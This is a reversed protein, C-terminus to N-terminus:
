FRSTSNSINQKESKPYKDGGTARFGRQFSGGKTYRTYQGPVRKFVATRPQNGRFFSQHTQQAQLIMSAKYLEEINEYPDKATSHQLIEAVKGRKKFGLLFRYREKMEEVITKLVIVSTAPVIDSTTALLAELAKGWRYTRKFEEMLPKSVPLKEPTPFHTPLTSACISDLVTQSEKFIKDPLPTPITRGLYPYTLFGLTAGVSKVFRQTRLLHVDEPIDDGDVFKDMDIIGPKKDQQEKDTPEEEQEKDKHNSEQLPSNFKPFVQHQKEMTLLDILQRQQLLMTAVDASSVMSTDQHRGTKQQKTKEQSEQKDETVRNRKAAKKQKNSIKQQEQLKQQSIEEPVTARNETEKFARATSKEPQNSQTLPMRARLVPTRQKIIAEEGNNSIIQSM